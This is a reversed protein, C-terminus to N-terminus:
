GAIREAVRNEEPCVSDAIQPQAREGTPTGSRAGDILAAVAGVAPKIISM